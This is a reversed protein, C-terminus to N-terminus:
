RPCVNFADAGVAARCSQQQGTQLRATCRADASAYWPAKSAAASAPAAAAQLQRTFAQISHQAVLNWTSAFPFRLEQVHREPPLFAKHFSRLLALVEYSEPAFPLDVRHLFMACGPTHCEEGEGDLCAQCLTIVITRLKMDTAMPEAM